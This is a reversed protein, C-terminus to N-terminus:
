IGPVPMPSGTVAKILLAGGRVLGYALAGAVAITGAEMAADAASEQWTNKFLNPKKVRKKELEENLINFTAGIKEATAAQRTQAAAMSELLATQQRTQTEVVTAQHQMTQVVAHLTQANQAILSQLMDAMRNPNIELSRRSEPERGPGQSQRRRQEAVTEGEHEDALQEAQSHMTM